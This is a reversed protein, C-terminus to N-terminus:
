SISEFCINEPFVLHECFMSLDESAQSLFYFIILFLNNLGRWKILFYCKRAYKNQKIYKQHFVAPTSHILRFSIYEPQNLTPHISNNPYSYPCSKSGGKKRNGQVLNNWKAAILIKTVTLALVTCKTPLAMCKEQRRLKQNTLSPTEPYKQAAGFTQKEQLQVPSIARYSAPQLYQSIYYVLQIINSYSTHLYVRGEQLDEKLNRQRIM